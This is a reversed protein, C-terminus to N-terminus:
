GIIKIEFECFDDGNLISKKLMVEVPKEFAAEFFMKNFEVSCHCYTDTKFLDRSKKVQGCFCKNHKTTFTKEDIIEYGLEGDKVGYNIFRDLFDKLSSAENMLKRATKRQGNGCCKSGCTRMVEIATDKGLELEVREIAKKWWFAKKVPKLKAYEDSKKMIRVFSEQNTTKEVIKAFRGIRGTRPIKSIDETSKM